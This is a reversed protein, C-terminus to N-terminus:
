FEKKSIKLKTQRTKKPGTWQVRALKDKHSWKYQVKGHFARVLDRGIRQAMQETTTEIDVGGSRTHIAMIRELPNVHSARKEENHILGMIEAKHTLWNPWQISVYGEPYGDRIKQCAPCLFFEPMMLPKGAKRSARPSQPIITGETPQPLTWRKHFYVSQCEPCIAFGTKPYHSAYPDGVHEKKKLSQVTYRKMKRMTM